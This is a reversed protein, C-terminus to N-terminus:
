VEEVCGPQDSAGASLGSQPDSGSPWPGVLEDVREIAAVM